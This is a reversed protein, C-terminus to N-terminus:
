KALIADDKWSPISPRTNWLPKPSSAGSKSRRRFHVQQSEGASKGKMQNPHRTPLGARRWFLNRAPRILLSSLSCLPLEAPAQFTASSASHSPLGRAQISPETSALSPLGFWSAVSRYDASANTGPRDDCRACRLRHTSARRRRRLARSTRPAAPRSSATFPIQFYHVFFTVSIVVASTKVDIRNGRCKRYRAIDYFNTTRLHSIQAGGRNDTDKRHRTKAQAVLKRRIEEPM